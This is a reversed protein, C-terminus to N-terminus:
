NQIAEVSLHPKLGSCDAGQYHHESPSPISTFANSATVVLKNDLWFTLIINGDTFM